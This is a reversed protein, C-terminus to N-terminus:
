AAEPKPSVPQLPLRRARWVAIAWIAAAALIIVGWAVSAKPTTVNPIQWETWGRKVVQELWFDNAINGAGYCLMLALYAGLLGRPWGRAVSPLLRSLLLASLVLLAGDMGHHHGHHVAPHLEQVGPQARLEDTQYLSGLVPVDSFSLGLDAGIWPVSLALAAAAVLVRLWDGSQRAPRGSRGLRRAAVLTLSLAVLVGLGAVANVPKADLDSEKVIGPWFVAASLAIGIVAVAKASRGFLRGFLIALIPIAVIALPFNLFVLARSAGGTLGSGSVHYTQQSPLRAYTVLIAATVAAFLVWVAAVELPFRRVPAHM